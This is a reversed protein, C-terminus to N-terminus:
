RPQVSARAENYEGAWAARGGRPARAALERVSKKMASSSMRHAGDRTALEEGGGSGRGGAGGDPWPDRPGGRRSGRDLETAEAVVGPREGGGAGEVAPAARLHDDVHDVLLAAHEALVLDDAHVAVALGLGLDGDVLRLPQEVDLLDVHEGADIRA